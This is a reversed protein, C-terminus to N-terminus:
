VEDWGFEGFWREREGFLAIAERVYPVVNRPLDHVDCWRLEDCKAPECNAVLGERRSCGFFFDVRESDSKRYLVGIPELDEDRMRIGIEEEAERHMATRIGENSEVHGAPVSYDGDHYGTNYRRLLLVQSDRRLLLHVAVVARVRYGARTEAM